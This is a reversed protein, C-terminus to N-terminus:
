GDQWAQSAVMTTWHRLSLHTSPGSEIGIEFVRADFYQDLGFLFSTSASVLSTSLTCKHWAWDSHVEDVEAYVARLEDQVFSCLKLLEDPFISVWRSFYESAKPHSSKSGGHVRHIRGWSRGSKGRIGRPQRLRRVISNRSHNYSAGVCGRIPRPSAALRAKPANERVAAAQNWRFM